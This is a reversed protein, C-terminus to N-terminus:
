VIRETVTVERYTPAGDQALWIREFQGNQFQELSLIVSNPLVDKSLMSM